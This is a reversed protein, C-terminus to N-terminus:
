GMIWRKNDGKMTLNIVFLCADIDRAQSIRGQLSYEWLLIEGTCETYASEPMEDVSEPPNM